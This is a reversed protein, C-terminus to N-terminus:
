VIAGDPPSGDVSAEQLLLAAQEALSAAEGMADKAPGLLTQTPAWLAGPSPLGEAKAKTTLEALSAGSKEADRAWRAFADVRARPRRWRPGRPRPPPLTAPPFRLPSTPSTPTPPSRGRSGPRSCRSNARSRSSRAARCRSRAPERSATARGAREGGRRGWSGM